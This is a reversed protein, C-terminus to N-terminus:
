NRDENKNELFSGLTKTHRTETWSVKFICNLVPLLVILFFFPFVLEMLTTLNKKDEQKRTDQKTHLPQRDLLFPLGFQPQNASSASPSNNSNYSDDPFVLDM